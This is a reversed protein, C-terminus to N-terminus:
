ALSGAHNDMRGGANTAPLIERGGSPRVSFGHLFSLHRSFQDVGPAVLAEHPAVLAAAELVHHVDAAREDLVALALRRVHDRGALAVAAILL